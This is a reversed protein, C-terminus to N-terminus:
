RRQRDQVGAFVKEYAAKPVPDSANSGFTVTGVSEKAGGGGGGGGGGSASQTDDNGCAVFASPLALAAATGAVRKLLVRRSLTAEDFM